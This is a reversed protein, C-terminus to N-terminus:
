DGFLEKAKEAIGKGLTECRACYVDEAGPAKVSVAGFHLGAPKAGAGGSYILMGKVLMAAIMSMEAFSGGGGAPFGQSAFVGGLKGAMGKAETDIFKKMQWSPTGAYTPTGFIVAQSADMFDVDVDAISMAKAEVGDVKLCGQCILEAMKATNGSESHYIVSVKM